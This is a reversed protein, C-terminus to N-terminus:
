TNVQDSANVRDTFNAMFKKRERFPLSSNTGNPLSYSTINIKKEEVEKRSECANIKCTSSGTHIIQIDSSNAGTANHQFAVAPQFHFIKEEGLVSRFIGNYGHYGGDLQISANWTGKELADRLKLAAAPTLAYMGTKKMCGQVMRPGNMRGKVVGGWQLFVM